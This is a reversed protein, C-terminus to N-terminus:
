AGPPLLVANIVHIIGNSARINTTTIKAQNVYVSGKFVRIRVSAGEATRVQHLKVVSSAPVAGPVVHYLLVAKLKAKNHALANLTAAPVKAFAANTPAFVTYKTHGSLVGALGAAKVLRVLTSFQPASSAVQVITTSSAAASQPSAGATAVPIVALMAACSILAIIRQM